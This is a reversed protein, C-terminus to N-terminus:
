KLKEGALWREFLERRIIWDGKGGPKFAFGEPARRRIKSTSMGARRAAEAVTLFPSPEPALPAATM